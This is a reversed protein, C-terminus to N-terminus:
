RSFIVAPQRWADVQLRQNMGAHDAKQFRELPEIGLAAYLEFDVGTITDMAFHYLAQAREIPHATRHPRPSALHFGGPGPEDCFKDSFRVGVLHGFFKHDRQFSIKSEVLLYVVRRKQAEFIPRDSRRRFPFAGLFFKSWLQKESGNLETSPLSRMTLNLAATSFRGSRCRKIM